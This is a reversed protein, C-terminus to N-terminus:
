RNLAEAARKKRGMGACIKSRFLLFLGRAWWLFYLRPFQNRLVEEGRDFVELSNLRVISVAAEFASNRRMEHDAELIQLAKSLRSVTEKLSYNLGLNPFVGPDEGDLERRLSALSASPAPNTYHDEGSIRRFTLDQTVTLQAINDPTQLVVWPLKRGTANLPPLLSNLTHSSSSQLTCIM